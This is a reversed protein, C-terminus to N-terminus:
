QSYASIFFDWSASNEAEQTYVQMRCRSMLGSLGM